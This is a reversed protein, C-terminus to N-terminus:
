RYPRGQLKQWVHAEYQDIFNNLRTIYDEKKSIKEELNTSYNKLEGIKTQQESDNEKTKALELGIKLKQDQLINLQYEVEIKQKEILDLASNAKTVSKWSYFAVGIGCAIFIIAIIISWEAWTLRRKIKVINNEVNEDNEPNTM